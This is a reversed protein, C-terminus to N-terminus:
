PELRLRETEARAARLEETQGALRALLRANAAETSELLREATADNRVAELAAATEEWGDPRELFLVSATHRDDLHGAAEARLWDLRELHDILTRELPAPLRRGSAAVVRRLGIPVHEEDLLRLAKRAAELAPRILRPDAM